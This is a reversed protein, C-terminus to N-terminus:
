SVGVAVAPSHSMFPSGRPSLPSMGPTKVPRNMKEGASLAPAAAAVAPKDVSRINMRVVEMMQSVEQQRLQATFSALKEADTKGFAHLGLEAAKLEIFERNMMEQGKEASTKRAAADSPLAAADYECAHLMSFKNIIEACKPHKSILALVQREELAEGRQRMQSLASEAAAGGSGTAFKFEDFLKLLSEEAGALFRACGIELRAQRTIKEKDEVFKQVKAEMGQGDMKKAINNALVEVAKNQKDIFERVELHHSFEKEFRVLSYLGAVYLPILPSDLLPGLASFLDTTISNDMLLDFIDGVNSIVPLGGVFNIIEDVGLVDAVKGFPGLASNTAVDALGQFLGKSSDFVPGFLDKLIDTWNFFESFIPTFGGIPTLILFVHLYRWMMAKDEWGLIKQMDNYFQKDRERFEKEAAKLQEESLKGSEQALDLVMKSLRAMATENFLEDDVDGFEHIRSMMREYIEKSPALKHALTALVNRERAKYERYRRDHPVSSSSIIGRGVYNLLSNASGVALEAVNSVRNLLPSFKRVKKLEQPTAERGKELLIRVKEDSVRLEDLTRGRADFVANRYSISPMTTWRRPLEYNIIQQYEKETGGIFSWTHSGPDRHYGHLDEHWRQGEGEFPIMSEHQAIFDKLNYAGPKAGNILEAYRIEEQQRRVNKDQKACTKREAFIAEFKDHLEEFDDEKADVLAQYIRQQNAGLELDKVGCDEYLKNVRAMRTKLPGDPVKEKKSPSVKAAAAAAAPATAPAPVPAALPPASPIAGAIAGPAPSIFAARPPVSPTKSPASRPLQPPVSGSVAPQSVMGAARALDARQRAVFARADREVGSVFGLMKEAHFVAYYGCDAGTQRTTVFHTYSGLQVGAATVGVAVAAQIQDPVVDIGQAGEFVFNAYSINVRGDYAKELCLVTWHTPPAEHAARVLVLADLTAEDSDVRNLVFVKKQGACSNQAFDKASDQLTQNTAAPGAFYRGVEGFNAVTGAADVDAVTDGTQREVLRIIENHFMTFVQAESLNREALLIDTGAGPLPSPSQSM